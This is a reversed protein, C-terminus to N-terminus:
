LGGRAQGAEDDNDMRIMISEVDRYKGIKDRDMEVVDQMEDMEDMRHM